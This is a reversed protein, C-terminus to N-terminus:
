DYICFYKLRKGWLYILHDNFISGTFIGSGAEILYRLWTNGSGPYSALACPILDESFSVVYKSCNDDDPWLTWTNRKKDIYHPTRYFM